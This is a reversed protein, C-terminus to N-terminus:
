EKKNDIFIERVKSGLNYILLANLTTLLTDPLDYVINGLLFQVWYVCSILFAIILLVRGVSVNNGTRCLLTKFNM